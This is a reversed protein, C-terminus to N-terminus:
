GPRSGLQRCSSRARPPRRRRRSDRAGTAPVGFGYHSPSSGRRGQRAPLSSSTRLPLGPLGDSPAPARSSRPPVPAELSAPNPRFLCPLPRKLTGDQCCPQGPLHQDRLRPSARIVAGPTLAPLDTPSSRVAQRCPASTSRRPHFRGRLPFKRRRRRRPSNTNSTALQAHRLRRRGAPHNQRQM